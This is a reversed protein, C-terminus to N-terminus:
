FKILGTKILSKHFSTFNIKGQKLKKYGSLLEVTTVMGFHMNQAMQIRDKDFTNKDRESPNLYEWNSNIVFVGFVNKDLNNAGATAAYRAVVDCDDKTPNGGKKRCKAEIVIISNEHIITVDERKTGDTLSTNKYGVNKFYSVLPITLEKDETAWLMELLFECKIAEANLKSKIRQLLTKQKKYEILLKATAPLDEFLNNAVTKAKPYQKIIKKVRDAM